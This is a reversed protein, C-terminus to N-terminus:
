VFTEEKLRFRPIFLCSTCSFCLIAFWVFNNLHTDILEFFLLSSFLPLICIIIVVHSQIKKNFHGWYYEVMQFFVYLATFYLLIIFDFRASGDLGYFIFFSALCMGKVVVRIFFLNVAETRFYEKLFYLGYCLILICSFEPSLTDHIYSNLKPSKMAMVPLLFLLQYNVFFRERPRVREIIEESLRNLGVLGSVFVLLVFSMNTVIMEINNQEKLFDSIKFIFISIVTLFVLVYNFFKLNNRSLFRKSFVELTLSIYLFYIFFTVVSDETCSFFTAWPLLLSIKYKAARERLMYAHSILVSLSVIFMSSM